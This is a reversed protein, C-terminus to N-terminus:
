SARGESPTFLISGESKREIHGVENQEGSHDLTKIGLEHHSHAGVSCGPSMWHETSLVWSLARVLRLHKSSTFQTHSQETVGPKSYTSQPIAQNQFPRLRVQLSNLFM